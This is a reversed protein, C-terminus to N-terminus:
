IILIRNKEDFCNEIMHTCMDIDMEVSHFKCKTSLPNMTHVYIRAKM